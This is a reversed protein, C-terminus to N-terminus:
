TQEYLITPDFSEKEFSKKIIRMLKIWRQKTNRGM